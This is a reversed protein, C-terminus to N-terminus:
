LQVTKGTKYSEDAALVIRLSNIADNLHDTLDVDNQIANLFFAQELDCLGQHDPEDTTDLIEDEKKFSGDPNTMSHHVLLSNTASHDDVNDSNVNDESPNKDVISM